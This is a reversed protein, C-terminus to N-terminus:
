LSLVPGQGGHYPVWAFGWVTQPLAPLLECGSDFTNQLHVHWQATGLSLGPSDPLNLWPAKRSGAVQQHLLQLILWPHCFLLLTSVQVSSAGDQLHPIAARLKGATPHPFVPSCPLFIEPSVTVIECSRQFYVPLGLLNLPLVEGAPLSLLKPPAFLGQLPFKDQNGKAESGQSQGLHLPFARPSSLLFCMFCIQKKSIVPASLPVPVQFLQKKPCLM